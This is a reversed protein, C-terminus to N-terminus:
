RVRAIRQQPHGAPSGRDQRAPGRRVVAPPLRGQPVVPARGRVAPPRDRRGRGPGENRIRAGPVRARVESTDVIRLGNRVLTDETECNHVIADVIGPVKAENSGYSRVITAGVGLREFYRRRVEPRARELRQLVHRPLRERVERGREGIVAAVAVDVEAGRLIRGILSSKGAGPEGFIGLRQGEGCTLLGDIARIGLALPQVIRKRRLALPASRDVAYRSVAAPHELADGDIPRGFGDLIRGLLHPGVAIELSRGTRSVETRTSLGALEGLPALLAKGDSVGIVEAQTAQGEARDRLECIEGICADSLTAEITTGVARAVRGILPRPNIAAFRSPQGTREITEAIM